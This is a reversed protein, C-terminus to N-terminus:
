FFTTNKSCHSVAVAYLPLIDTPELCAHKSYLQCTVMIVISLFHPALLFTSLLIASGPYFHLSVAGVVHGIDSFSSINIAVVSIFIHSPCHPHALQFVPFHPSRPPLLSPGMAITILLLLNSHNPYTLLLSSDSFMLSAPSFLHLPLARSSSRPQSPLVSDSPFNSCPLEPRFPGSVPLHFPIQLVQQEM